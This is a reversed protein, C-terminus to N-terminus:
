RASIAQLGTTATRAMAIESAARPLDGAAQVPASALLRFLDRRPGAALRTGVGVQLRHLTADDGAQAAASAQRLV